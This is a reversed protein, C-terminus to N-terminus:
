VTSLTSTLAPVTYVSDTFSVKCCCAVVTSTDAAASVSSVVVAVWFMVIEDSM